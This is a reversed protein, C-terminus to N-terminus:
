GAVIVELQRPGHVGEVRELEIDSTASPGSILTLPRRGNRVSRGLTEIAEPVGFVIQEARVVCIHVDPVLTVARRGQTDGGDLAITGTLAIALACGTLAAVGAADLETVALPPEDVRARVETPIWGSPLGRPHVLERVSRRICADQVAAAVLSQEVGCRVVTARYDSCRETFLEILSSRDGPGTRAYAADPDRDEEGAVWSAPEGSPVEKLAQRVRSLILERGSTM